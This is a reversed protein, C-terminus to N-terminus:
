KNADDILSQWTAVNEEIKEAPTKGLAYVEWIFTAGTDLGYIFSAYDSSVRTKPDYMLALTEDVARAVRFNPYYGEKWAEPDEEYGPTPDTWLDYAFAIKNATELDYCSPIIATNDGFYVSYPDEITPKPCLVFGFDDTM